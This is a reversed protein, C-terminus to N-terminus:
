GTGRDCAPHGNPSFIPLAYFCNWLCSLGGLLYEPAQQRNKIILLIANKAKLTNEIAILNRLM